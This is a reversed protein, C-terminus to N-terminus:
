LRVPSRTLPLLFIKKRPKLTVYEAPEGVAKPNLAELEVAEMDADVMMQVLQEFCTRPAWNLVRRAKTADGILQDVETPRVFQPDLVVHDQWDLGLRDFAIEVFERVSHTEGTAVVYDGPEDQQLMRWMAEVYEGAYGWDRRADLNGLHLKEQLGAKIRAAARTIKRTVFTDGRRPSEHNFLIGNSAHLGHSERYNVTIGYGFVKASGYPSRPYFPTKETQPTEIAKGFMESSSAQYIRPRCGSQVIADLLRLVGLGTINCTNEPSTFSLGVHSQAALNYVEDPVITDILRFLSLSDAMDGGHLFLRRNFITPDDCLHRLRVAHSPSEHRILGHVEYGKALLFEALYSGDQGSIGTIFARRM